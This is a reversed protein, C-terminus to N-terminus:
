TAFLACPREFLAGLDRRSWFRPLLCPNSIERGRLAELCDYHCDESRPLRRAVLWGERFWALRGRAAGELSVFSGRSPEM